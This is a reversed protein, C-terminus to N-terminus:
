FAVGIKIKPLVKLADHFYGLYVGALFRQSGPLNFVGVSGKGLLEPVGPLFM